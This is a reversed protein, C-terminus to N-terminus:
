VLKDMRQMSNEPTPLAQEEAQTEGVRRYYGMAAGVAFSLYTNASVHNFVGNLMDATVYVLVTSAAIIYPMYDKRAVIKVQRWLEIVFWIYIGLGLAGGHLLMFLFGNHPGLTASGRGMSIKAGWYGPGIVKYFPHYGDYQELALRWIKTRGSGTYDGFRDKLGEINAIAFITSVGILVLILLSLYLMQRRLGRVKRYRWLMVFLGLIGVVVCFYGTRVYTMGVGILVLSSLGFLALMSLKNRQKIAMALVLPLCMSLSAAMSHYSFLGSFEGVGYLNGDRFKSGAMAGLVTYRSIWISIVFVLVSLVAYRYIKELKLRGRMVMDAVAVLLLM